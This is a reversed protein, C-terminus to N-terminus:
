YLDCAGGTCSMETLSTTNDTAEYLSLCNWDVKPISEKMRHYTEADCEEYPAQEYIHDDDNFPLFSVGSILDFHEYVFDRVDDWEKERVYVTISPKHECWHLQYIIWLKLQDLATVDKRYKGEPAKVPFSLVSTNKQYLDKEIPYGCDKMLRTIPDSDTSRIRRIYYKSYRPHIGSSSDVLLSTTGEPKVCTIAVSPNIGLREAWNRNTNIARDRLRRLIEPLEPNEHDSLIPHDMIGNLSVGLLREEECNKKWEDDLYRFDILTSQLTGFITAIEVKDLLTDITDDPKIIVSSLNCFERPRLIVESCPNTGPSEIASRRNNALVQKCCGERNFIGREGSHSDRLEQWEKEFRERVPKTTYVASNNSLSRHGHNLYWEGSKARRMEDDDLDSLSILASRRTGGAVIINAIKCVIDHCELTTLKRGQALRFIKAIFAFLDELPDPGSSFGGFTKLRAGVPRIKSLDYDPYIGSYLLEISTKIADCWGIKDDEVVIKTKVCIDEYEVEPLCEVYKREVSFGVGTGCMLLYACTSFSDIRDIPLYSCNYGAVNDRELAPGATTLCRMSPLVHLNIMANKLKHIIEDSLKRDLRNSFFNLYRECTEEWTERRNKADSWRAYRSVFVYYQMDSMPYDM